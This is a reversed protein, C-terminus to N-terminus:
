KQFWLISWSENSAQERLVYDTLPQITFAPFANDKELRMVVDSFSIKSAKHYAWWCYSILLAMIASMFIMQYWLSFDQWFGLWISVFLINLLTLAMRWEFLFFEIYLLRQTQKLLGIIGTFNQRKM